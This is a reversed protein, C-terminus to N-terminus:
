ATREAVKRCRVDYSIISNGNKLSFTAGSTNRFEGEFAGVEAIKRCKADYTIYYNGREVVFFGSGIGGYRVM